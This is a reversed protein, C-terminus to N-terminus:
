LTCLGYKIFPMQKEGTYEIELSFIFKCPLKERIQFLVTDKTEM